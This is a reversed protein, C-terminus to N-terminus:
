RHSANAEKTMMMMQITAQTQSHFNLYNINYIKFLVM